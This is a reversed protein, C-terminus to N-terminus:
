WDLDEFIERTSFRYDRAVDVLDAREQSLRSASHNDFRRIWLYETFRNLPEKPM